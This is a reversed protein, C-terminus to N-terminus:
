LRKNDKNMMEQGIVKLSKTADENKANLYMGRTKENTGFVRLKKM